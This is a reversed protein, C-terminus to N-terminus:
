KFVMLIKIEVIMQKYKVKEVITKIVIMILTM